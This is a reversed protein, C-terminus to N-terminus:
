SDSEGQHNGYNSIIKLVLNKIFSESIDIDQLTKPQELLQFMKQMREDHYYYPANGM